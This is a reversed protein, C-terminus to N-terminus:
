LELLLTVPPCLDAHHRCTSSAAPNSAAQSVVSTRKIPFIRRLNHFVSASITKRNSIMFKRLSSANLRHFRVQCGTNTSHSWISITDAISHAHLDLYTCSKLFEQWNIIWSSRFLNRYSSINLKVEERGVGVGGLGGAPEVAAQEIGPPREYPNRGGNCHLSGDGDCQTLWGLQESTAIRCSTGEPGVGVVGILSLEWLCWHCGGLFFFFPSIGDCEEEDGRTEEVVFCDRANRKHAHFHLSAHHPPPFSPPPIPPPGSARTVCPLLSFFRSEVAVQRLRGGEAGKRRQAWRRGRRGGRWGEGASDTIVASRLRAPHPPAEDRWRPRRRKM